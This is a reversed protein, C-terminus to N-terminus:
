AQTPLAQADAEVIVQNRGALKGAYLAVDARSIPADLSEGDGHHTSVGFTMSVHIHKGEFAVDIAAIQERLREAVTRARELTAGPMMVLFEEGGWRAVKDDGRVAQRLVASVATLVADGAAHGHLDNISKFHDIDALVFAMSAQEGNPANRLERDAIELLSRRNLLQTLPDTTALVRLKHEAQMVLKMYLSSLYTLLLFTTAINVGRLVSLTQTSLQDYPAQQRMTQDLALYVVCMLGILALKIQQREIKSIVVVPAVLLLYYHFGGDWGIARTALAAHFLIEGVILCSALLNRRYTLCTYSAAFLLVSAVNIWALTHAGLGYFLGIFLVHTAGAVLSVQRM